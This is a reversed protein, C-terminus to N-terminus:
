PRSSQPLSVLAPLTQTSQQSGYRSASLGHSRGVCRALGQRYMFEAHGAAGFTRNEGFGPLPLQKRHRQHQMLPTQEAPALPGLAQRLGNTRRLRRPILIEAVGVVLVPARRKFGQKPLFGDCRRQRQGRQPLRPPNGGLGRGMTLWYREPTVNEAASSAAVGGFM